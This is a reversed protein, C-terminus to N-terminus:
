VKYTTHDTLFLWQNKTVLSAIVQYVKQNESIVKSKTVLKVHDSRNKKM